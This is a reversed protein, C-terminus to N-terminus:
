ATTGSANVWGLVPGSWWVPINLTTDFYQYGLEVGNPRSETLGVHIQATEGMHHCVNLQQSLDLLQNLYTQLEATLTALQANLATLQENLADIDGQSLSQNQLQINIQNIQNQINNIESLVAYIPDYIGQINEPLPDCTTAQPTQNQLDSIQSSLYDILPTIITM